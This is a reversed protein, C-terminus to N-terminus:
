VQEIHGPDVRVRWLSAAGKVELKVDEGILRVLMKEMDSLLANLDTSVPQPSRKRSFALLQRTLLSARQGAKHIQELLSALQDPNDYGFMGAFEPNVYRIQLHDLIAVGQLSAEVVERFDVPPARREAPLSESAVYRPQRNAM